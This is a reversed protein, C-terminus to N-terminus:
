LIGESNNLLSRVKEIFAEDNELGLFELETIIWEMQDKKCMVDAIFETCVKSCIRIIAITNVYPSTKWRQGLDLGEIIDSYQKPLGWHKLGRMGVLIYLADLFEKINEDVLKLTKKVGLEDLDKLVCLAGISHFLGALYIEEESIEIRIDHEKALYKSLIISSRAVAFSHEWCITLFKNILPNDSKHSSMSATFALNVIQKSGLRVVAARITTITELGM